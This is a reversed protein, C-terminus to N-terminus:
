LKIEEIRYDNSITKNINNILCKDVKAFFLNIKLDNNPLQLKNCLIKGMNIIELNSNIKKIKDTLIPYHTCGLVIKNTRVQSLYKKLVETCDENKEILPVLLPCAIAYIFKNSRVTMPTALVTTDDDIIDLVPSIIDYIPINYKNKLYELINTSITGCAIIILDVNKTLLFDIIKCSLLKLEEISKTGYPININDGCYYYENPYKILEKLVTLGGIGSDFIGIRM